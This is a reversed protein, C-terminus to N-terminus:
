SKRLRLSREGRWNLSLIVLAPFVASVLNLVFYIVPEGLKGPITRDAYLIAFLIMVLYGTQVIATFHPKNIILYINTIFDSGRIAFALFALPMYPIVATYDPYFTSVSKEFVFYMPISIAVLLAFFKASIKVSYNVVAAKGHDNFTLVQNTFILNNLISQTTNGINTIILGFSLVAFNEVSLYMRSVYREGFLLFFTLLGVVMMSLVPRWSYYRLSRIGEKFTTIFGEIRIEPIFKRCLVATAILTGLTEVWMIWYGDPIIYAALSGSVVMVVNRAMIENAYRSLLLRARTESTVANFLLQSLGSALGAFLYKGSASVFSLDTLCLISAGGFVLLTITFIQFIGLLIDRSNGNRADLPFRRQLETSFGLSGVIAFFSGILSLTAYIGFDDVSVLMAYVFMRALSTANAIGLIVV